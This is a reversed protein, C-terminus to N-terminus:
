DAKSVWDEVLSLTPIIQLTYTSGCEGCEMKQNEVELVVSRPIESGIRYQACGGGDLQIGMVYGCHHCEAVVESFVGM